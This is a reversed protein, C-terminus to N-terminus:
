SEGSGDLTTQDRDAPFQRLFALVDRLHDVRVFATTGDDPPLDSRQPVVLRRFGLRTAENIRQRMHGVPRIEGSLGVEGIVAVDHPLPIGWYASAIAACTAADIAPENVRLGGVTALFSDKNFMRIRGHRETVAVLMAARAPDLGAVGRRPNPSNTPGVLAQVEALVPRRGEMTVSVCTGATPTTRSGLYLGSADEVQILGRDQQELTACEDAAGFRNKSARLTRLSSTKEGELHLVADVLHVLSQPGAINGDKTIQAILVTIIGREKTMRALTTGVEHVQPVSGARGDIAPSAITQVSDVVLFDPQAEHVQALVATLDTEDALLLTDADAGIRRARAAIQAVSEEGSVILATRGSSAMANAIALTLTSKGGGPEGALLLIEGPVFGGGLVRDVESLGCTVRTHSDAPVDRAARAPRTVTGPTLTGKIGVASARADTNEHVTDFTGCRTCRGVWKPYTAGCDSCAYGLANRAM